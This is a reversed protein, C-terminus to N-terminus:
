SFAKLFPFIKVYGKFCHEVLFLQLRRKWNLENFGPMEKTQSILCSIQNLVAKAETENCNNQLAINDIVGIGSFVCSFAAQNIYQPQNNKVFDLVEKSAYLADYNVSNKTHTISGDRQRYYYLPSSDYVIKHAKALVKYTTYWDESSKGVPYKINKFLSRKYVKDWAAVDYYGLISTNMLAISEAANMIKYVNQKQKIVQKKESYVYIRGYIVIDAHEKNIISFVRQYMDQAIYDDSDIFSIYEGKAVDMGANRASSLGGNQKHIVKVRADKKAYEDCIKPCSDPSGDDVLILEFDKFDQNLISDVCDQLYKEVKYVPVVISLKM